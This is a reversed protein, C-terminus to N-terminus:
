QGSSNVARYDSMFDNMLDDVTTRLTHSVRASGVIGTISADWTNARIADPEDSDVVPMDLVKLFTLDLNYVYSSPEDVDVISARLMLIPYMLSDDDTAIRVGARRLQSEISSQLTGSPIRDQLGPMDEVIVRIVRTGRLSDARAALRTQAVLPTAAVMALVLSSLVRQVSFM